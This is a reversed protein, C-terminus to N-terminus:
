CFFVLSGSHLILSFTFLVHEESSFYPQFTRKMRVKLDVKQYVIGIEDNILDM